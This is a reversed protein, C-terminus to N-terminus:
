QIPAGGILLSKTVQQKLALSVGDIPEAMLSSGGGSILAIVLDDKTLGSVAQKIKQAAAVSRDDPVPHSATLMQLQECNTEYGQPVAVVGSLQGPWVAELAKAMAGSAKGAGVVVTRKGPTPLDTPMCTAPQAAEIAAKMLAALTKHVQAM